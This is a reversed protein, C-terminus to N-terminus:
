GGCSPARVVQGATPEALGHLLRLLTSKGCGNAGVLAVREGAQISLNLGSLARVASASQGFHVSAQALSVVPALAQSM